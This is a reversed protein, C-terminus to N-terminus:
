RVTLELPSQFRVRLVSRAPLELDKGEPGVVANRGAVLISDIEGKIDGDVAQTVTTDIAYTRGRVTIQDFVMTLSGTQDAGWARTVKTVVGRLVSGKPILLRGHQVVDAVTSAEFRDDVKAVTSSLPRTLAVSIDTGLAVEDAVASDRDGSPWAEAQRLAQHIAELRTEITHCDADAIPQGRRLSVLLYGVEDRLEDLQALLRESGEFPQAEVRVLDAQINIKLQELRETDVPQASGHIPVALIAVLVAVTRVPLWRSAPM